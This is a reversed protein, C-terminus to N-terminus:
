KIIKDKCEGPEVWNGTDLVLQFRCDDKQSVKSYVFGVVVGTEWVGKTRHVYFVRKGEHQKFLNIAYSDQLVVEPKKNFISLKM